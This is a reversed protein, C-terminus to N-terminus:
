ADPEGDFYGVVSDRRYLGTLRRLEKPGGPASGAFFGVKNSDPYVGVDPEIMTSFCLYRLPGQSSNTLRHAYEAGRPIAILDGARVQTESEGLAITGEGELVFIAEENACHYHRPFASAGPEVEYLSAGLRQMGAPATFAKRRYRFKGQAAATWAIQDQNVVNLSKM